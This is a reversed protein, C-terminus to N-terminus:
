SSNLNIKKFSTMLALRSFNKLKLHLAQTLPPRELTCLSAADNSPLSGRQRLVERHRSKDTISEEKWM